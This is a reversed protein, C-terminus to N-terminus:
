AGPDDAWSRTVPKPQINIAGLKRVAPVYPLKPDLSSMYSDVWSVKIALWEDSKKFPVDREHLRRLTEADLQEVTFIKYDLKRLKIALEPDMPLPGRKIRCREHGRVDTKYSKPKRPMPLLKKVREKIVQSKLKLTYYPPPTYGWKKKDKDKIGMGKRNRKYDKRMESPMSQELVFTRHENIINIVMPLMWPETDAARPWVGNIREPDFWLVWSGQPTEYNVVWAKLIGYVEGTDTMLHGCIKGHRIDDRIAKPAKDRIAFGPAPIGDGYGLFVVEFPFKEPYPADQALRGITMDLKRKEEPPLKEYNEYNDYDLGALDETVYRGVQDVLSNVMESDIHFVRAERLCNYLFIADRQENPKGSGSYLRTLGFANQLAEMYHEVSQQEPKERKKAQPRAQGSMFFSSGGRKAQNRKREDRVEDALAPINIRAYEGYESNALQEAILNYIKQRDEGKFDETSRAISKAFDAVNFRPPDDGMGDDRLEKEIVEASADVVLTDLDINGKEPTWESDIVEGIKRMLVQQIIPDLATIRPAFKEVVEAPLKHNLIMNAKQMKDNFADYEEPALVRKATELINHIQFGSMEGVSAWFEPAHIAALFEEKREALIGTLRDVEGQVSRLYASAEKLQQVLRPAEQESVGQDKVLRQTLLDVDEQTDLDPFNRLLIKARDKAGMNEWAAMAENLVKVRTDLEPSPLRLLFNEVDLQVEESQRSGRLELDIAMRFTKLSGSALDLREDFPRERQICELEWEVEELPDYEIKGEAAGVLPGQNLAEQFDSVDFYDVKDTAKQIIEDLDIGNRVAERTAQRIREKVKREMPNIKALWKAKIFEGVQTPLTRSPAGTRHGAQAIEKAALERCEKRTQEDLNPYQNDISFFALEEAELRWFEDTLHQAAKKWHKRPIKERQSEFIPKGAEFVKERIVEADVGKELMDRISKRLAGEKEQALLVRDKTQSRTRPRDKRQRKARKNRSKSM